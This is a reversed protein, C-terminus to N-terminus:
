PDHCDMIRTCEAKLAKSLVAKAEAKAEGARVREWVRGERARQLSEELEFQVAASKQSTSRAAAAAHRLATELKTNLVEMGTVKADKDLSLRQAMHKLDTIRANAAQKRVKMEHKHEKVLEELSEKYSKERSVAITRAEELRRALRDPERGAIDVIVELETIRTKLADNRKHQEVLQLHYSRDRKAQIPLPTAVVLAHIMRLVKLPFGGCVGHWVTQEQEVERSFFAAQVSAAAFAKVRRDLEVPALARTPPLNAAAPPPPDDGGGGEAAAAPEEFEFAFLRLDLRKLLVERALEPSMAKMEPDRKRQKVAEKFAVVLGTVGRAAAARMMVQRLRAVTTADPPLVPQRFKLQALLLYLHTYTPEVAGLHAAAGDFLLQHVQLAVAESVSFTPISSMTCSGDLLARLLQVM